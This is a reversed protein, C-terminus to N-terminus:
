GGSGARPPWADWAIEADPLDDRRVTASILGYPRDAAYFVENANTRGFPTLDVAFHHKNPASLRIEHVTEFHELVAKGMEWLTQQLAKSHVAAYREILVTRIGDYAARWAVDCNGYRWRVELSTAMLRDTTPALTTYDDSLFGTFESGASKLLVLGSIGSVVHVEAPSSEVTVTTTRTEGGRRVFTHEHPQGDVAARDWAYDEVAVRAGDVPDVDHVFHRALALAFDEPQAEPLDAAFAYVTNKQTDTPLVSAQDGDIHASAFDGHLATSVNRDSIDHRAGHRVVRVVRCEAKGYTNAGLVIAM